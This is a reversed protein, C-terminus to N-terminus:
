GEELGAAEGRFLRSSTYRALGIALLLKILVALPVAILLGVFGFFYGAVALALIVWVPHLGVAGEVIRPSIVSGELLQVGALVLVVKGLSLLIAGSFLALIIAPIASVIIGLYPVVNFVGAIAGLLFAYPFGLIWFGLATLTGIVAAVLLQGRLYGALLRDYERAFAVVGPRQAPPVLDAVRATIRRYDRLLYFTLIPTLVVYGLVTLVSGVGRGVGLIAGWARRALEGQQVRLRAVVTEPDLAQLRGLLAREDVLPFDRRALERQAWETWEVGSRILGPMAQIFEAIQRGLAPVGWLIGVALAALLPLVLLFIAAGRGIRRRELADVAPHLIYALVLALFFPALLFGTTELLWLLTLVGATGVLLLHPRSGGYPAVMVVLLVFLLFPNLLTRLSFLFLAVVLVVVVGHVTRWPFSEPQGDAM